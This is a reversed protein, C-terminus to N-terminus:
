NSSGIFISIFVRINTCSFSLVLVKIELIKILLVIKIISFPKRFCTCLNYYRELMDLTYLGGKFQHLKIQVPNYGQNFVFEFSFEALIKYSYETIWNRLHFWIWRSARHHSAYSISLCHSVVFWAIIKKLNPYHSSLISVM